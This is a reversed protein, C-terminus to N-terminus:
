LGVSFKEASVGAPLSPMMVARAPNAAATTPPTVTVMVAVTVIGVSTWVCTSFTVTGTTAAMERVSTSAADSVGVTAIM